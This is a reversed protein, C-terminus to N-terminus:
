NRELDRLITELESLTFRAKLECPNIVQIYEYVEPLSVLVDYMAQAAMEVAYDTAECYEPTMRVYVVGAVADRSEITCIPETAYVVAPPKTTVRLHPPDVAFCPSALMLMITPAILFRKM